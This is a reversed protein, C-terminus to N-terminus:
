KSSNETVSVCTTVSVSIRKRNLDHRTCRLQWLSVIKGGLTPITVQLFAAVYLAYTSKADAYQVVVCALIWTTYTCIKRRWCVFRICADNVGSNDLGQTIENVADSHSQVVGCVECVHLMSCKNTGCDVRRAIHVTLYFNQQKTSWLM